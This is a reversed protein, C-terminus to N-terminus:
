ENNWEDTFIEFEHAKIMSVLDEMSSARRKTEIGARKKGWKGSHNDSGAFHMLEYSDAYIRAMNNLFDSKGANIVEVGDVLSPMLQITGSRSERFPHAHILIGGNEHVFQSYENFPLTITEPHTLLFEPSLGYTLFDAGKCGYEFGFFVDLGLKDGTEKAIEYGRCFMTAQEEWTIDTKPVTTNGNLFHDTIIVGAYGHEAYVRAQEEAPAKACKSIECTHLHTEYRYTKEAEM